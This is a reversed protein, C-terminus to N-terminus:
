GRAAQQMHEEVMRDHQESMQEARDAEIARQALPFM